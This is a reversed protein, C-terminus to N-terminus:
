MANCSHCLTLRCHLAWQLKPDACRFCVGQGVVPGSPFLASCNMEVRPSHNKYSLRWKNWDGLADSPSLLKLEVDGRFFGVPVKTPAQQSNFGHRCWPYKVQQLLFSPGSASPKTEPLCVARMCSWVLTWPEQCAAPVAWKVSVSCLTPPPWGQEKLNQTNPSWWM